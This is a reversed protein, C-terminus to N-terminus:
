AFRMWIKIFACLAFARTVGYDYSGLAFTTSPFWDLSSTLGLYSDFNELSLVEWKRSALLKIISRLTAINGM